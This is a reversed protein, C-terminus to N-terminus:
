NQRQHQEVLNLQHDARDDGLTIRLAGFADVDSCGVLWGAGFASVVRRRGDNSLLWLLRTQELQVCDEHM